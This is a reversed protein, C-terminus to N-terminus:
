AYAYRERLIALHHAVHGATIYALANVTVPNDSAIGRLPWADQPLHRFLSLTAQRVSQFEDMLSPWAREHAGAMAAAVDQDFGPLPTDFGRAFWFARYAFVRETDSMHAVVERISRQRGRLSPRAAITSERSLSPAEGQQADLISCIDGDPVRDIYLSVSLRGDSRAPAHTM